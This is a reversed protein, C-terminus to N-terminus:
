RRSSSCYALVQFPRVWLEGGGFGICAHDDNVLCETGMLMPVVFGLRISVGQINAM